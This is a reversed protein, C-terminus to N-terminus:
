WTGSMVSSRMSYEEFHIIVCIHFWTYHLAGTSVKQTRLLRKMVEAAKEMADDLEAVCAENQLYNLGRTVAFNLLL